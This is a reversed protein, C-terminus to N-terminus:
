SRMNLRQSQTFHQLPTIDTCPMRSEPGVEESYEEYKVSVMEKVKRVKKIIEEKRKREREKKERKGSRREGEKERGRDRRLSSLIKSPTAVPSRIEVPGAESPPNCPFTVTVICHSYSHCCCCYHCHRHSCCYHSYQSLSLLHREETIKTTMSIGVRMEGQRARGQGIKGQGTRDQVIRDTFEEEAM